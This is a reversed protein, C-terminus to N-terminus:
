NDLNIRTKEIKALNPYVAGNCGMALGGILTSSLNLIM